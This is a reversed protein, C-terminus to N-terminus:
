GRQPNNSIRKIIDIVGVENAAQCFYPDAVIVSAMNKWLDPVKLSKNETNDKNWDSGAFRSFTAKSLGFEKSIEIDKYYNEIYSYLIKLVLKRVRKKGLNRIAPRLDHINDAKEDAVKQYLHNEIYENDIKQNQDPNNSLEISNTGINNIRLERNFGFESFIAKQIQEKVLSDNPNTDIFTKELWKRFKNGEIWRPKKLEINRSKLKWTYRQYYRNKIRCSELWSYSIHIIVQKQFIKEVEYEKYLETLDKQSNEFESIKTYLRKYQNDCYPGEIIPNDNKPRLVSFKQLTREYVLDMKEDINKENDSIIIYPNFYKKRLNLLFEPLLQRIGDLWFIKRYSLLHNLAKADSHVAIKKILKFTSLQFYPNENM